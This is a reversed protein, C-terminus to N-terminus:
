RSTSVSAPADPVLLCPWAHPGWARTPTLGRRVAITIVSGGRITFKGASVYRGHVYEDVRPYAEAFEGRTSENILVLPVRDDLRAIMLQQDDTSTYSHPAMTMAHGAGFGRRAFVYFEPAQWTLWIREDPRTCANLYEVADPPSGNPWYRRWPWERGAAVIANARNWLRGPSHWLAAVRLEEGVDSVADISLIAGALVVIGFGRLLVRSTRGLAAPQVPGM